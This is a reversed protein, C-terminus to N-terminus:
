LFEAEIMIDPGIQKISKFHTKIGLNKRNKNLIDPWVVSNKSKEGGIILPSFFGIFRDALRQFVFSGLIRGGGEVFLHGIGMQGLEKLLAKLNVRGNNDKSLIMIEIDRKRLKATKIKSAKKTTAIIVRENELVKANLSIRLSSDVIVIIPQKKVKIHRVNLLPNDKIITEIGVLVADSEARLKHTEIRSKLSSIWRSRGMFDAIRGDFSQSIKLTVYPIKQLIFKNFAYNIDECLKESVGAEVKIGAKTLIKLSKGRHAPNFDLAGIIVKKIGSQIIADSCPPTKGYTSCPELTIYLTAEKVSTKASKIANIEAHAKGYEKHYGKGIIRGNKVILAGVMPNPHANYIGKDALKIAKSMFFDDTKKVANKKNSMDEIGSGNSLRGIM